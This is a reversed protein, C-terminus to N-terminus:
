IQSKYLLKKINPIIKSLKNIELETFNITKRNTLQNISNKIIIPHTQLENSAFQISLGNNRVALDVINGDSRLNECLFQLLMGNNSIIQCIILYLKDKLQNQEFTTNNSCYLINDIEDIAYKLALPNNSIAEIIIEPDKLEKLVNKLELGDIKVFELVISRNNKYKKLIKRNDIDNNM